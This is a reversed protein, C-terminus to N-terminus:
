GALVQDVLAVVDRHRFPKSLTRVGEFTEATRLFNLKGDKGGGSMAIIRCGPDRNRIERILNLGGKRPMLIDTIVLDAPASRHNRLGEEGDTADVVEHGMSELIDRLVERIVAEDEVVLIRAM